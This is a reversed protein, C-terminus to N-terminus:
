RWPLPEPQLEGGLLWIAPDRLSGNCLGHLCYLYYARWYCTVKWPLLIPDNGHQSDFEAHDVMVLDIYHHRIILVLLEADCTSYVGCGM